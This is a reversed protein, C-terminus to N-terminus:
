HLQEREKVEIDSVVARFGGKRLRVSVAAGTELQEASTILADGAFVAAYGRALTALPSLADLKGVLAGFRAQIGDLRTRYAPLLRANLASFRQAFGLSIDQGLIRHRASLRRYQTQKQSILATYAAAFRTCLADTSLRLAGIDVAALEAAASPTPARLDAVFDCITYDTEHGVASIVPFPSRRLTRALTEDNFCALDEASGGGRGIIVTDVDRRAYLRELMALMSAVGERGQVLVPCLLIDVMPNRRGLIQVIDQVAAGTDSTVVAVRRPLPSVPRKLEQRFLGEAELKARTQEFAVALAGVGDPQMDNVYLQFQGDREWLDARAQCVVSMGDVPRFRLASAASKFMVARVASSADKLTFYLHGSAYHAKVNSLEGKVFLASLHRDEALLAHTYRNLQSVTVILPNM